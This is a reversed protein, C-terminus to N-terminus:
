SSRAIVRLSPLQTLNNIINETLGDALNETEPDPNQNAFPLVAISDIAVETKPHFYGFTLFLSFGALALAGLATLALCPRRTFFRSPKIEVEDTGEEEIPEAGTVPARRHTGVRWEHQTSEPQTERRVPAILRCGRPPLKEIPSMRDWWASLTNRLLSVHGAVNGEEVCTNPWVRGMFE